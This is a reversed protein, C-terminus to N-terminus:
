LAATLVMISRGGILVKEQDNLEPEQGPEWIDKPFNMATNVASHWRLGQDPSPLNFELSEWYMNMAVYVMDLRNGHEKDPGSRHFALVRSMGSWDAQWPRTEHWIIQASGPVPHQPDTLVPHRKRFEILLRCFRFLEAHKELLEWDFWTLVSDHCYANNNGQQTQGCEDGMRLMPIGQSVLLMTLANKIQRQRLSNVALSDTPGEVGCNWSNNDNAGDNNGEGNEENHKGNYSVLDRLTFGDHCTLFNISAIAARGGYLDPSGTIRAAMESVQGMDGKLFKRACDRYKGNWEAWRGFAPFTGVQYLGGADWAEAILKTRGLVPDGALSELLPPNKLPAGNQDRGLISALDFRFGDIHYEAVWYRLCDVVFNHVVPNNCNFTNGVGSFNYYEGHPALMYYTKNDLGRFSITPGQENGEATHNFVVDLIIEIGNRHLEKILTKFEDAQLGAEGTAAYAAKPAFFSVTNYGWYNWLREGTLPNRRVLETEDFEFVPLLEVCNVGLEKLYPIKERLGVFTGPHKVGSSPSRTFGRVHMEYIILDHFPLGLPRDDGWDFDEPQIRSRYPYPQKRDPGFGWIGPGSIARAAPDLLVKSRDFRHGEEPVWPGDMRFGYETAYPDLDFVIMAFVDGIRFETPFPVEAYPQEKGPEFLVLTCATAHRSYVSFNIGGMVGTAGFPIPLGKRLALNGHRHTPYADIRPIPSMYESFDKVDLLRIQEGGEPPTQTFLRIFGAADALDIMRSSAGLAYITGGAARVIRSFMLVMRMGVGSVDTVGSLDLILSCGPKILSLVQDRVEAPPSSTVKGTIKIVTDGGESEIQVQVSNETKDESAAQSERQRM